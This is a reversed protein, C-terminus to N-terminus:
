RKIVVNNNAATLCIFTDNVRNVVDFTFQEQTYYNFYSYSYYM